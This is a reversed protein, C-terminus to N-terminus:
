ALGKEPVAPRLCVLYGYLESLEVPARFLDDAKPVGVMARGVGKYALASIGPVPPEQAEGDLLELLLYLIVLDRAV